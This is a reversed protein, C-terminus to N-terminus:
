GEDEVVVVKMTCGRARRKKCSEKMTQGSKERMDIGKDCLDDWSFPCRQCSTPVVEVEKDFTLRVTAPDTSIIQLACERPRTTEYAKKAQWQLVGKAIWKHKAGICCEKGMFPCDNCNTPVEDVQEDLILRIKVM